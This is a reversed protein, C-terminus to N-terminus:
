RELHKAEVWLKMRSTMRRCTDIARLGTRRDFFEWFPKDRKVVNCTKCLLVANCVWFGGRHWMAFNGGRSKPIFVHDLHVGNRDDGCNLCTNGCEKVITLFWDDRFQRDIANQREKDGKIIKYKKRNTYDNFLLIKSEFYLHKIVFTVLYASYFMWVPVHIDSMPIFYFLGEIFLSSFAIALCTKCRM